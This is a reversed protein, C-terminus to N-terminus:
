AKKRQANACECLLGISWPANADRRYTDTLLTLFCLREPLPKAVGTIDLYIFQMLLHQEPARQFWAIPMADVVRTWDKRQAATLGLPPGPREGQTPLPVVSLEAMSRRSM